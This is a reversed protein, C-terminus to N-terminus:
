ADKAGIPRPAFTRPRQPPSPQEITGNGLVDSIDSLFMELASAPVGTSRITVVTIDAGEAIALNVNRDQGPSHELEIVRVEVQM